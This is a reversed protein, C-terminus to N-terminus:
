SFGYNSMITKEINASDNPFIRNLNSRAYNFATKLAESPSYKSDAAEVHASHGIIEIDRPAARNNLLYDIYKKMEQVATKSEKKYLNLLKEDTELGFNLIYAEYTRAPLTKSRPRLKPIPEGPVIKEILIWISNSPVNMSKVNNDYPFRKIGLNKGITTSVKKTSLDPEEYQDEKEIDNQKPEPESDSESDPESDPESDTNVLSNTSSNASSAAARMSEPNFQENLITSLYSRWTEMILKM